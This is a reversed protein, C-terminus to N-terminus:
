KLAKLSATKGKERMETFFKRVKDFTTEYKLNLGAYCAEVEVSHDKAGDKTPTEYIHFSMLLTKEAMKKEETDKPRRCMRCAVTGNVQRLEDSKVPNNCCPCLPM